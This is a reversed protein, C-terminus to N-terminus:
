KLGGLQHRSIGIYPSRTPGTGRQSCQREQATFALVKRESSRVRLRMRPINWLAVFAKGQTRSVGRRWTRRHKGAAVPSHSLPVARQGVKASRSISPHSAFCAEITCPPAAGEETPLSPTLSRQERTSPPRDGLARALGGEVRSTPRAARRNGDHQAPLVLERAPQRGALRRHARRGCAGGAHVHRRRCIRCCRRQRLDLM